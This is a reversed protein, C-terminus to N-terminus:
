EHALDKVPFSDSICLKGFYLRFSASIFFIPFMFWSWPGTRWGWCYRSSSWTTRDPLSTFRSSQIYFRLFALAGKRGWSWRHCCGFGTLCLASNTLFSVSSSSIWRCTRILSPSRHAATWGTTSSFRGVFMASYAISSIALSELIVHPPITGIIEVDSM